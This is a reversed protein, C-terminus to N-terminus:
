WYELALGTILISAICFYTFWHSWNENKGIIVIEVFCKTFLANLTSFYSGFSIECLMCYNTNQILELEYIIFNLVFLLSIGCIFLLFPLQIFYLILGSAEHIISPEKPGFAIAFICGTIILFTGFIQQKNLTENLYKYSFLAAFLLTFSQLPTIITQKGIGLSASFIITGFTHTVFGFWWFTDFLYTLSKNNDNRDSGENQQNNDTKSSQAAIKIHSKKELIWGTADIFCGILAIGIPIYWHEIIIEQVAM